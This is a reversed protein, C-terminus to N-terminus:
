LARVSIGLRVSHALNPTYIKRSRSPAGNKMKSLMWHFRNARGQAKSRGGLRRRSRPAVLFYQPNLRLFGESRASLRFRVALPTLKNSIPDVYTLAAFSNHGSLDGEFFWGCRACWTRRPVDTCASYIRAYLERGRARKCRPRQARAKM